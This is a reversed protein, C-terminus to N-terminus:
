QRKIFEYDHKALWWKFEEISYTHYKLVADGDVVEICEDPSNSYLDFVEDLPLSGSVAPQRSQELEEIQRCLSRYGNCMTSHDSHLEFMFKVEKLIELETKM